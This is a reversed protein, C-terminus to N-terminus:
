YKRECWQEDGVAYLQLRRNVARRDFRHVTLWDISFAGYNKGITQWIAQM